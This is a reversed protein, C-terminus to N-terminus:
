HIKIKFMQFFIYWSFWNHVHEKSVQSTNPLLLTQMKVCKIKYKEWACKELLCVAGDTMQYILTFEQLKIEIRLIVDVRNLNGDYM